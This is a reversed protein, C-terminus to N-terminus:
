APAHQALTPAYLTDVTTIQVESAEIEIESGDSFLISHTFCDTERGLDVEDYLWQMLSSRLQPALVNPGLRVTETVRYTLLNTFQHGGDLNVLIGFYPGTQGIWI